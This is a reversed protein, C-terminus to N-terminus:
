AHFQFARTRGLPQFNLVFHTSSFAEKKPDRQVIKGDYSSACSWQPPMLKISNISSVNKRRNRDSSRWQRKLRAGRTNLALLIM